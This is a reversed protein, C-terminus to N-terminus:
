DEGIELLLGRGSIEKIKRVNFHDHKRQLDFEKCKEKM